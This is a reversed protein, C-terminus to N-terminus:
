IRVSRSENEGGSGVDMVVMRSEVFTHSLRKYKRAIEAISKRARERM